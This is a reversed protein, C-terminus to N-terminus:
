ANLEHKRLTYRHSKSRRSVPCPVHWAMAGSRGGRAASINLTTEMAVAAVHFTCWLTSIDVSVSVLAPRPPQQFLGLWPVLDQGGLALRIPFKFARQEAGFSGTGLRQYIYAEVGWPCIFFEESQFLKTSHQQESKTNQTSFSFLHLKFIQKPALLTAFGTFFKVNSYLNNGSAPRFHQNIQSDTKWYTRSQERFLGGCLMWYEGGFWHKESVKLPPNQGEQELM